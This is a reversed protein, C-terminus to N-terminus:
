SVAAVRARSARQDRAVRRAHHDREAVAEVVAAARRAEGVGVARRQAAQLAAAVPDPDGAIVIGLRGLADAAAEQAVSATPASVKRWRAPALVGVALDGAM